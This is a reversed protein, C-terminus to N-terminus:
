ALELGTHHLNRLCILVLQSLTLTRRVLCDTHGQVGKSVTSRTRLDNNEM